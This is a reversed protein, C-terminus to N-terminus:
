LSAALAMVVGAGVMLLGGTESLTVPEKLYWRGFALSWFIQTQGVIGVLAVPAMAYGIFWGASALAGLLGVLGTLRWGRLMALVQDPERWLSWCTQMLAQFGLVSALVLLGALSRGSDAIQQSAIRVFLATVAFLLGASLGSLAAPQGLGQMWEILGRAGKRTSLLVIGAFALAIGGWALPHLVEGLLAWGLLAALLTETKMYATGSVLNRQGMSLVILNTAVMQAFGAAWCAAWFAPPLAPLRSQGSIILFGALLFLAVPFGFFFRALSAAGVSMEGRVKQQLATRWALFFAATLAAPIWIM